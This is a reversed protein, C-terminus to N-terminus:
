ATPPQGYPIAHGYRETKEGLIVTGLIRIQLAELRQQAQYVAPTRSVDKMVSLLVADAQKGLMLADPVPLIPSSDIVIFDYQDELWEFIASVGEQALAQLAHSDIKGASLLWLRSIPTQKIADEFEVEGRLAECFGPELPQDFQKHQNPNRLDGDILLTKRWARALSAALHSALTTKGEGERASAIMIVRVGEVRPAHLLVTRIADVAETMGYQPDGEALMAASRARAAPPLKPLTGIIPMGLNNRLESSTYVRRGRAELLCIGGLLCAFVFGASALSFKVPRRYDKESPVFAPELCVVRPQVPLSGKLQSLQEGVRQGEKELQAVQDRLGLVHPPAKPGGAEQDDVKRLLRKIEVDNASDQGKMVQLKDELEGIEKRLIERETKEKQAAVKEKADEIMEKRAKELQRQKPREDALIKALAKGEYIGKYETIKKRLASIDKSLEMYDPDARLSDLAESDSVTPPRMKVLRDRKSALESERGKYEFKHASGKQQMLTLETRAAGAAARLDGADDLGAKKEALNLETRKDRLQEATTPNHNGDARDRGVSLSRELVGIQRKIRAEEMLNTKGPFVEGIANLLAAVAEPEPGSLTVRLVEQGGDFNTLLTKQIQSPSTELGYLETIRSKAIGESLVDYSKLIAVQSKQIGGFNSEDELSGGAPRAQIRFASSTTYQAPVLLWTLAAAVVAGVLAVPVALRWSKRLAHMLTGLTPAASLAAPAPAPALDMEGSFGAPLPTKEPASDAPKQSAFKRPEAPLM